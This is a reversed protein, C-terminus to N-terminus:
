AVVVVEQDHETLAANGDEAPEISQSTDEILTEAAIEDDDGWGYDDESGLEEADSDAVEYSRKLPRAPSSLIPAAIEDSAVTVESLGTQKVKFPIIAGVGGDQAVLTMGGAKIVGLYRIRDTRSHESLGNKANRPPWDMFMCLRTSISAEWEHGSIAPLLMAPAGQRLKTSTQCILIVAVNHLAAMKGLKNILESMVAFKRSAAWKASDPNSTPRGSRQYANEFPTSINDIVIISTGKPPFSEVPHAFLALLHPLSPAPFRHFRETIIAHSAENAPNVHEESLPDELRKSALPTATDVWVARDGRRLASSCAQLGLTTKGIGPPGYVETIQGRVIGGSINVPVKATGHGALITDLRTLSTSIAHPGNSRLKQLAQSASLTPLRHTTSFPGDDDVDAMTM